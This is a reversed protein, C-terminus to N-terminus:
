QDVGTACPRASQLTEDEFRRVYEGLRDADVADGRHLNGILRCIEALAERAVVGVDVISKAAPVIDPEIRPEALPVDLLEERCNRYRRQQNLPCAVCVAGPLLDFRDFTLKVPRDLRQAHRVGPVCWM